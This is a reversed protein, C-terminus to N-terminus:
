FKGSNDINNDHFQFSDGKVLKLTNVLRSSGSSQYLICVQLIQLSCLYTNKFTNKFEFVAGLLSIM